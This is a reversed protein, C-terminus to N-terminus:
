IETEDQFFGKASNWLKIPPAEKIDLNAACREFPCYSIIWAKKNKKDVERRTLPDVSRSCKWCIVAM